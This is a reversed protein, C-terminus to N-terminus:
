APVLYILLVLGWVVALLLILRARILKAKADDLIAQCRLVWAERAADEGARAAGVAAEVRAAVAREVTGDFGCGDIWKALDRSVGCSLTFSIYGSQDSVAAMVRLKRAFEAMTKPAVTQIQTV